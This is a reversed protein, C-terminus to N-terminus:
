YTIDALHDSDGSNTNCDNEYMNMFIKGTDTAALVSMYFCIPTKKLPEKRMIFLILLNGVTGVIIIVPSAIVRMLRVTENDNTEGATNIYNDSHNSQLADTSNWLNSTNSHLLETSNVEM